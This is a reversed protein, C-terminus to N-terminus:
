EPTPQPAKKNIRVTEATVTDPLSYGRFLFFGMVAM